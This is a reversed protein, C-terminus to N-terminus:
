RNIDYQYDKGDWTHQRDAVIVDGSGTVQYLKYRWGGYIKVIPDIRARAIYRQVRNYTGPGDLGLIARVMEDETAYADRIYSSTGGKHPVHFPTRGGVVFIMGLRISSRYRGPPVKEKEPEERRARPQKRAYYEQNREQLSRADGKEPPNWARRRRVTRGEDTYKIYSVIVYKGSWRARRTSIVEAM